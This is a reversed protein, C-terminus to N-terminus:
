LIPGFEETMESDEFNYNNLDDTMNVPDVVIDNADGMEVDKAEEEKEKKENKKVKIVIGKEKYRGASTTFDRGEMARAIEGVRGKPAVNFQPQGDLVLVLAQEKKNERPRCCLEVEQETPERYM